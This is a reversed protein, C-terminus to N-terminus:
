GTPLSWRRSCARFYLFFERSWLHPLPGKWPRSNPFCRLLARLPVLFFIPFFSIYLGYNVLSKEEQIKGTFVDAFFGYYKFAFLVLVIGLIGICLERKGSQGRNRKASIGKGVFWSFIIELILLGWFRIDCLGYFVASALLLFWRRSRLPLIAYVLVCCVSFALISYTSLIM